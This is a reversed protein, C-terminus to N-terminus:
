EDDCLFYVLIVIYEPKEMPPNSFKRLMAFLHNSDTKKHAFVIKRGIHMHIREAFLPANGAQFIKYIEKVNDPALAHIIVHHKYVHILDINEKASKKPFQHTFFYRKPICM